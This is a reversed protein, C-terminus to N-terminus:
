HEKALEASVAMALEQVHQSDEASRMKDLRFREQKPSPLVVLDEFLTRVLRRTRLVAGLQVQRQCALCGGLCDSFYSAGRRSQQLDDVCLLCM